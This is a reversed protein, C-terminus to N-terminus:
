LSCFECYTDYVQLCLETCEVDITFLSAIEVFAGAGSLVINCFLFRQRIAESLDCDPFRLAEAPCLRTFQTLDFAESLFEFARNSFGCIPPILDVLIFVVAAIATVLTTIWLGIIAGVQLDRGDQDDKHGNNTLFVHYNERVHELLSLLEDPSMNEYNKLAEVSEETDKYLAVSKSEDMTAANNIPQKAVTAAVSLNAVLLFCLIHQIVITIKM